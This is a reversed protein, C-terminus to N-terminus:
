GHKKQFELYQLRLRKFLMRGFSEPLSEKNSPDNDDINQRTVMHWAISFEEIVYNVEIPSPEQVSALLRLRDWLRLMAAHLESMAYADLEGKTSLDDSLKGQIGM